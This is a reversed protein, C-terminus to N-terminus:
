RTVGDRATQDVVQTKALEDGVRWGKENGLVLFGEVGLILCFFVM